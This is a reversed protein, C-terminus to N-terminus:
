PSSTRNRLSPRIPGFAKARDSPEIMKVVSILAASCRNWFVLPHGVM